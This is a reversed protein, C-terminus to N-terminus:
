KNKITNTLRQIIKGRLFKHLLLTNEYSLDIGISDINREFEELTRIESLEYTTALNLYAERAKEDTIKTSALHNIIKAGEEIDTEWNPFIMDKFFLSVKHQDTSKNTDAYFSDLDFNMLQSIRNILKLEKENAETDINAMGRFIFILVAKEIESCDRLPQILNTIGKNMESIIEKGKVNLHKCYYEIYALESGQKESDGDCIGILTLASIVGKKQDNSLKNFFIEIPSKKNFLSFM